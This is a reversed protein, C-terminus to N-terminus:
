YSFSLALLLYKSVISISLCSILIPIYIFKKHTFILQTFSLWSILLVFFASEILFKYVDITMYTLNYLSFNAISNNSVYKFIIYTILIYIFVILLKILVHLIKYSISYDIKKAGPLIFVNKQFFNKFSINLNEIFKFNFNFKLNKIFDFM